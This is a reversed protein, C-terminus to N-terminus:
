EDKYTKIIYKKGKLTFFAPYRENDCVRLLNFQEKISKDIDLESDESKRKPYFTEEGIQERGIVKDINEIFDVILGITKTGQRHKIEPLLEDGNLEIFDQNYIVGSDIKEAAEFLTIPIKSSGELIQWTLPSWGKGKPLYSEHVVLNYKNLYLKKFIKECGLLCLVDGEIVEEHQYILNVKIDNEKRLIDVLQKAYDVMWSNPNDVLIQVKM